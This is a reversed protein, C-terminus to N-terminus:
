TGEAKGRDLFMEIYMFLIAVAPDRMSERDCEGVLRHIKFDWQWLAATVEPWNANRVKFLTRGDPARCEYMLDSTVAGEPGFAVVATGDMKRLKIEKWGKYTLEGLLGEGSSIEMAKDFAFRDIAFTGAETSFEVRNPRTFLRKFSQLYNPPEIRSEFLREGDFTTYTRCGDREQKQVKTM